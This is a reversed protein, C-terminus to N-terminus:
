QGDQGENSKDGITHGHYKTTLIGRRRVPYCRSICFEVIDLNMLMDLHILRFEVMNNKLFLKVLHCSEIYYPFQSSICFEIYYTLKMDVM